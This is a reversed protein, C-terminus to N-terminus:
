YYEEDRLAERDLKSADVTAPFAVGRWESKQYGENRLKKCDVETEVIANHGERAALFAMRLITEDRDACAVVRVQELGRKLTTPRRKQTTFFVFVTKALEMTEGYSVLAPEVTSGYCGSCYHTHSLEPPLEPLFSFTTPEIFQLCSKCVDGECLGCKKSAKPKRCSVCQNQSTESM